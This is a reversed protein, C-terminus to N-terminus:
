KRRPIVLRVLVRADAKPGSDRVYAADIAARKRVDRKGGWGSAQAPGVVGPRVFHRVGFGPIEWRYREVDKATGAEPGVLSMEGFLVNWLQPVRDLGWRLMFLRVGLMGVGATAVFGFRTFVTAGRGVVEERSIIGGRCGRGIWLVGAFVVGPVGLGVLGLLAGCVDICRKWRSNGWLENARGRMGREGFAVMQQPLLTNM